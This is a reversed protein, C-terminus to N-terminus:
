CPTDGAIPADRCCQVYEPNFNNGGANTLFSNCHQNRGPGAPPGAAPAPAAPAAPMQPYVAPPPPTFPAAPPTPMLGQNTSGHMGPMKNPCVSDPANLWPCPSGDGPYGPDPVCGPCDQPAAYVPTVAPFLAIFGMIAAALLSKM